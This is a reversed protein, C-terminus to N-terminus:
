KKKKPTYVGKIKGLGKSELIEGTNRSVVKVTGKEIRVRKEGKRSVDKSYEFNVKEASQSYESAKKIKTEAM